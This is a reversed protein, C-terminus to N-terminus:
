RGVEVVLDLSRNVGVRDERGVFVTTDPRVVVAPGHFRHGPALAEGDYFPIRKAGAASPGEEAGGSRRGPGPVVPRRGLLAGSPDPDGPEGRTLTPPEVDGVARVRVNVIEVPASPESHGYTAAHDAHFRAVPDDGRRFPVTIEYAQGRYRLDLQRILRTREAPVGEARMERRAREVLPDLVAAVEVPDADGPLMVTRGYDKIVDATLMGLASLVSAAPPVLVRPVGLRRALDAAHLGGAGGFSVLTFEAPDHGREVSIVRLAREMRANAVRVVGLAARRAASLGNGDRDELGLEVALRDLSRRAAGADLTLAGGLFREPDLRGLVLNADTVTAAEGGRGYCAPGPRAGASEPGVRLAGGRDVRAISGGGSGVTNLDVVPVAVPVGGIEAETTLRPGGEAVSVDTSTGGMDFTLIRDAGAAAGVHVAGVVGGAPGSLVSRVGEARATELDVSGGSSQMIRLREAPMEDRLRGLYRDLVPTVYANAATTSAREFERFEPLIRSSASVRFGAERLRAAAREEHEPALFSFLFCVAVSEVDLGELRRVVSELQDEDLERLVRGGADVREGVELCLDPPVLPAPPRPHLDYLEPRTQRGLRLLDGFGRTTVFAVRAGRRELLANTAVTSGHVVSPRVRGGDGSRSLDDGELLEALGRLVAEAPDDPTSLVKHTRLGGDPGAAVFDTFTGGIDVGVRLEGSTM